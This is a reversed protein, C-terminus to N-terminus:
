DFSRPSLFNTTATEIKKNGNYVEIELKTKDSELLYQNIEIFLTGGNMGQKPAKFDQNGVM